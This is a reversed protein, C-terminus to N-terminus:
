RYAEETLAELLTKRAQALTAAVTGEALDTLAAIEAYSLDAYYRLFVLLRRRPPLARVAAALRPDSEPTQVDPVILGAKHHERRSREFALRFMTRWVWSSLARRNRLQPGSALARAFAEQVVECALEADQTVTAAVRLFQPFERRYLDEVAAAHRQDMGICLVSADFDKLAM